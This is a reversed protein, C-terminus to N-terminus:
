SGGQDDKILILEVKIPIDSCHLNIDYTVQENNKYTQIISVM